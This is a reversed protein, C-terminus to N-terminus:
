LQEADLQALAALGLAAAPLCVGPIGGDADVLAAGTGPVGDRQRVERDSVHVRRESLDLCQTPANDM